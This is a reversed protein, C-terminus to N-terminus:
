ESRERCAASAGKGVSFADGIRGSPFRSSRSLAEPPTRHSEVAPAVDLVRRSIHLIAPPEQPATWDERGHRDERERETDPRVGGDKLQDVGDPQPGQRDGTGLLEGFHPGVARLGEAAVFADVRPGRIREPLQDGPM